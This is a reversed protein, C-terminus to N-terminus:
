GFVAGGAAADDVDDGAGAGILEVAGGEGKEAVLREVGGVGEGDGEIAVCEAADLRVGVTL